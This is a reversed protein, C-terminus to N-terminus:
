APTQPPAQLGLRTLSERVRDRVAHAVELARLGDEGSAGTLSEGRIAGLFDRLEDELANRKAVTVKGYSLGLKKAAMILEFPGTPGQEATAAAPDLATAMPANAQAPKAEPPWADPSVLRELRAQEVAGDLLDVSYYHQPRFFRIKRVKEKSVRSATLNAVAGNRFRLRANAIDEGATLVPVGVADLSEIESDIVSLTLDLDHIMLDLVVDIDLSRGAFPALRHSEVFRPERIEDRVSQVAPNFREVHGVALVAGRSRATAIMARAEELHEAIPKEVLVHIGEELAQITLAHHTVTPTAISVADVHQHALVEELSEYATVDLEGALAQAKATDIDAVGCLRADELGHYLRAHFTGLHGCGIVAVSTPMPAPTPM